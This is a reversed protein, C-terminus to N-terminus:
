RTEMLEELKKPLQPKGMESVSTSIFRSKIIPKNDYLRFIDQLFSFRLRSFRELNLGVFFKDGSRLPHLYDIEARIVVVNIGKKALSTVNIGEHRLFEHRAHELYHQYVANNVIGQFDCEYDRVEFDLKFQYAFM